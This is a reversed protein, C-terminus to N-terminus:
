FGEGALFERKQDVFCMGALASLGRRPHVFGQSALDFFVEVFIGGLFGHVLLDLLSDLRASHQGIGAVEGKGGRRFRLRQLQEARFRHDAFLHLEARGLFQGIGGLLRNLFSADEVYNGVVRWHFAVVVNGLRHLIVRLVVLQTRELLNAVIDFRMLLGNAAFSLDHDIVEDQLDDAPLLNAALRSRHNDAISDRPGDVIPALHRVVKYLNLTWVLSDHRIGALEFRFSNGLL